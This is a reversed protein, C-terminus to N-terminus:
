EDSEDISLINDDYEEHDFQDDGERDGADLLDVM